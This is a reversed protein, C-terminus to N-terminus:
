AAAAFQQRNGIQGHAGAGTSREIHRAVHPFQDILRARRTIYGERLEGLQEFFQLKGRGGAVLRPVHNATLGEKGRFLEVCGTEPVRGGHRLAAGIHIDPKAAHLVRPLKTEQYPSRGPPFARFRRGWRNTITLHADKKMPRIRMRGSWTALLIAAPSTTSRGAETTLSSRSFESSAPAVSKRTSASDPPRRSMRTTSSPQPMNRSSASSAKSRWAVLLSRSTFSRSEMAVRPNRPSASGEMADTERRSSSVREASSVVPVRMSIAPPLISRQSSAASPPPVAM